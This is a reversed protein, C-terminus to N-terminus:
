DLRCHCLPIDLHSRSQENCVSMIARQGQELNQEHKIASSTITTQATASTPADEDSPLDSVKGRSFSPIANHAGSTVNHQGCTTEKALMLMDHATAPITRQVLSGTVFILKQKNRDSSISGGLFASCHGISRHDAHVYPRVRTDCLM